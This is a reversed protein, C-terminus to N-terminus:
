TKAHKLKYKYTYVVQPNIDLEKAISLPKYGAVLMEEIIALTLPSSRVLPRSIGTLSNHSIGSLISDITYKRVNLKLAIEKRSLGTKALEVVDLVQKKSSRIRKKPREVDIQYRWRDDEVKKGKTYAGKNNICHSIVTPNVKFIEAVEVLSRGEELVLRTAEIQQDPSLAKFTGTKPSYGLVEILHAQRYLNHRPLHRWCYGSCINVAATYSIGAETAADRVTYGNEYFGLCLLVQETTYRNRPNDEGRRPKSLDFSM